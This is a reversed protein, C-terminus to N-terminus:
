KYIKYILFPRTLRPTASSSCFQLATLNMEWMPGGTVLATLLALDWGTFCDCFAMQSPEHHNGSAAHSCCCGRKLVRRRGTAAPAAAPGAAAVSARDGARAAAAARPLCVHPQPCAYCLTPKTVESVPLPVPLQSRCRAQGPCSEACAM